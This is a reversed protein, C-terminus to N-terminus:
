QLYGIYDDGKPSIFDALCLNPNSKDVLQRPFSFEVKHDLLAVKEYISKARFFGYVGNISLWDLEVIKELMRKGDEFVKVAEM